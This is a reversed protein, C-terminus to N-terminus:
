HELYSLGELLGSDSIIMCDNKLFKMTQLLILTGPVILDERGKLLDGFTNLQSNNSYRILKEKIMEIDSISIKMNSVKSPNFEKISSLICAIVIPTGSTAVVPLNEYSKKDYNINNKLVESVKESIKNLSDDKFLIDEAFSVVGLEISKSYIIERNNIFSIETSGGGIDLHYFRNVSPDLSKLVGKVTLEAEREGSLIDINIGAEEHIYSVVEKGNVANRFASTGAAIVKNVGHEETLMKYKQLITVSRKIANDGILSNKVLGEGLRTINTERYIKKLQGNELEGILIRFTNTGLDLAAIRM